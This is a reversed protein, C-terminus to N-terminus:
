KRIKNETEKLNWKANSLGERISDREAKKKERLSALAEIDARIKNINENTIEIGKNIRALNNEAKM